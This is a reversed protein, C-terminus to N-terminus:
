INEPTVISQNLINLLEESLQISTAQLNENLQSLTSGAVLPIVNPNNQTIWAIVIANPSTNLISSVHRLAALKLNNSYNQYHVPLLRNERVYAGGLLPSYAMMTIKRATCFNQLEPTLLLQTGFDARLAPELFTHRQQICCFGEWGQRNAALNAEDLQWAYYNSAGAFRIKGTKVLSCFAEMIEQHPTNYDHAHAFYLDIYDVGFRKLSKECESIIIEKKLSRPIDGYQFGVKSAIFMSQRNGRQKLWKGILQESEGGKFGPVWSAYKNASDLFSGGAQSYLDLMMFSNHEDVKSGFYMTGLGIESISEGTYGLKVKRIM